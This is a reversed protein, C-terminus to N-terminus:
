PAVLAPTPDPIRVKPAENLIDLASTTNQSQVTGATAIVMFFVTSEVRWWWRNGTSTVCSLRTERSKDHMKRPEMRRMIRYNESIKTYLQESVQLFCVGFTVSPSASLQRAY